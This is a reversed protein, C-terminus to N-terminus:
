QIGAEQYRPILFTREWRTKSFFHLAVDTLHRVSWDLLDEGPAEYSWYIVLPRGILNERPVFGWFRSDSSNERNDGMAFFADPPVVIEGNVEHHQLMDLGHEPLGGPPSQPFNDRYVDPWAAIHQTYPEVLRQGNRVVQGNELHIRDGPLGMVRKVYATKGDVPFRFVIMDGRRVDRYPLLAKGIGKGIAGPDAYALKDVLVHDGILITSEMSGTPIVYAQVLTTTAFFLIALTITWEVVVGRPGPRRGQAIVNRLFSM